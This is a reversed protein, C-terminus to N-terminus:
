PAAVLAFRVATRVRMLALRWGSVIICGAQALDASLKAAVSKGTASAKRAGVIAICPGDIRGLSASSYLVPPPDPIHTLRQPYVADVCTTICIGHREFVDLAREILARDVSNVSARLQAPVGVARWANPKVRLASEADGFARLLQALRVQGLGPTYVLRM